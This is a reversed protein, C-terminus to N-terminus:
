YRFILVNFLTVSQNIAEFLVADVNGLVNFDVTIGYVLEKNFNDIISLMVGYCFNPTKFVTM